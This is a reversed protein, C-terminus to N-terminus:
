LVCILLCCMLVVAAKIRSPCKTTIQSGVAYLRALFQDLFYTILANILQRRVPVLNIKKKKKSYLKVNRLHIACSNEKHQQQKNLSCVAIYEKQTKM